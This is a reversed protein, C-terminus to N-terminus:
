QHYTMPVSPIRTLKLAGPGEVLEPDSREDSEREPKPIGSRNLICEGTNLQSLAQLSHRATADHM